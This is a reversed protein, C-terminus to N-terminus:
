LFSSKMRDNREGVGRPNGAEHGVDVKQANNMRTVESTGFKRCFFAEM